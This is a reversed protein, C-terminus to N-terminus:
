APSAEAVGFSRIRRMVLALLGAEILPDFPVPGFNCLLSAGFRALLASQEGRLLGHGCQEAALLAVPVAIAAIDYAFAYLTAILAGHRRDGGEACPAGTRAM